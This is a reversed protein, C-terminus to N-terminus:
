YFGRSFMDEDKMYYYMSNTSEIADQKTKWFNEYSSSGLPELNTFDDSCSVPGLFIVVMTVMIIKAIKNKM